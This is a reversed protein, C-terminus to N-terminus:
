PWWAGVDEIAVFAERAAELGGVTTLLPVAARIDALAASRSRASLENVFGRWAELLSGTPLQPLYTAISRLIATGDADDSVLRDLIGPAQDRIRYAAEFARIVVPARVRVPLLPILGVLRQACERPPWNRVADLVIWTAEEACDSLSPLVEEMARLRGEDTTIGRVARLAKDACGNRAFRVAVSRDVLEIGRSRQSHFSISQARALAGAGDGLQAQRAALAAQAGGRWYEDRIRVSAETLRTLRKGDLYPAVTEIMQSRSAEDEVESFADTLNDIAAGLELFVALDVLEGLDQLWFQTPHKQGGVSVAEQAIIEETLAAAWARPLRRLAPRVASWRAKADRIRQADRLVERVLRTDPTGPAAGLVRALASTRENRGRVRAAEHHARDHLARRDDRKRGRLGALLLTIRDSRDPVIEIMAMLDAGTITAAAQELASVLEIGDTKSAALLRTACEVATATRGARLLQVVAFALETRTEYTSSVNKATVLLRDPLWAAVTVSTAARADADGIPELAAAARHMLVPPIRSAIVGFVASVDDDSRLAVAADVAADLLVDPIVRGLGVLAKVRTERDATAVAAQLAARGVPEPWSAAIGAFYEAPEDAYFAVKITAPASASAAALARTRDPEALQPALALLARMTDPGNPLAQAESLLRKRDETPLGSSVAARTVTRRAPDDIRGALTIAHVQDGLEHNRLALSSLVEAADYASLDRAGTEITEILDAPVHRAIAAVARASKDMQAAKAYAARMLAPSQEDSLQSALVVAQRLVEVAKRQRPVLYDYTRLGDVVARVVASRFPDPGVRALALLREARDEFDGDGSWVTRRLLDDLKSTVRRDGTLALKALLENRRGGRLSTVLELVEGVLDADRTAPRGVLLGVLATAREEAGGISRAVAVAEDWTDGGVATLAALARARRAPEPVHRAATLARAPSWSGSRVLATLLAPPLNAAVSNISSLVLAYRLELGPLGAREAARSGRRVDEIFSSFEGADRSFEYWLNARRAGQTAPPPENRVSKRLQRLQRPRSRRPSISVAPAPPGRLRVTDARLLEHLRKKQGAAELYAPLELTHARREASLAALRAALDQDGGAM